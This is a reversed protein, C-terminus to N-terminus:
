IRMNTLSASDEAFLEILAAKSRDSTLSEVMCENSCMFADGDWELTMDFVEGCHDCRGLQVLETVKEDKLVFRRLPPEM